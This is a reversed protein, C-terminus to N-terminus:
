RVVDGSGIEECLLLLVHGGKAHSQVTHLLDVLFKHPRFCQSLELSNMRISADDNRERHPDQGIRAGVEQGDHCLSQSVIDGCCIQYTEVRSMHIYLDQSVSSRFSVTAGAAM